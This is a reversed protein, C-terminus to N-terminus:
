FVDVGPDSFYSDQYLCPKSVELILAANGVAIFTHETEVPMSLVSGEKLTSDKGAVTMILQGKIVNFTEHKIKHYHDPCRQGEFLFIYKGCYGEDLNNCIWFETEGIRSFDNLGFHLLLPDDDPMTLNWKNLQGYCRRLVNEKQEGVVEFSKKHKKQM